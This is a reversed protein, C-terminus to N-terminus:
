RPIKAPNIAFDTTDARLPPEYINIRRVARRRGAIHDRHKWFSLFRSVSPVVTNYACRTNWIYIYIYIYIFCARAHTHTHTYTCVYVSTRMFSPFFSVYQIRIYIHIRPPCLTARQAVGFAIYRHKAVLLRIVWLPSKGYLAPHKTSTGTGEQMMCVCVSVSTYM